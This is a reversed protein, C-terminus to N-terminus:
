KKKKKNGSKMAIDRLMPTIKVGFKNLYTDVGASALATVGLSVFTAPLGVAFLMGAGIGEIATDIFVAPDFKIKPQEQKLKYFALAGRLGAGVFGAAGFLIQPNITTLDM